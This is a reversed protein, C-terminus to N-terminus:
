ANAMERESNSGKERIIAAKPRPKTEDIVPKKGDFHAPFNYHLVHNKYNEFREKAKVSGSQKRDLLYSTKFWVDRLHDIDFKWSDSANKVELHATSRVEGIKHYAVNNSELIAEVSEDAQFVIAVK